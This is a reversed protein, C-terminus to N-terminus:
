QYCTFTDIGPLHRFDKDDTIINGVKNQCMLQFYLADYGDIKNNDIIDVFERSVSNDLTMSLESSMSTISDWATKIENLVEEREKPISRFRKLSITENPNYAKHIEWESREIINSIEVLVLPSSYLIAGVELAKEIFNPYFEIQYDHPKKAIFTKSPIYTTWFWVNTDVFFKDGNQPTIQKIDQLM